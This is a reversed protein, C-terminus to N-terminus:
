LDAAEAGVAEGAESGIAALQEQADIIAQNLADITFAGEVKIAQELGRLKSVQANIRLLRDAAALNPGRDALPEGTVPHPVLRGSASVLFHEARFIKHIEEALYELEILQEERYLEVSTDQAALNEALARSFDKTAASVSTYGLEEYIEAYPRKQRRYDVLKTRRAAVQALEARPHGKM